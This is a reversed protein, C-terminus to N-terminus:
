TYATTCVCVCVKRYTGGCEIKEMQIKEQQRFFTYFASSLRKTEHVCVCVTTCMCVIQFRLPPLTTINSLCCFAFRFHSFLFFHARNPFFTAFCTFSFFHLACLLCILSPQQHAIAMYGTGIGLLLRFLFRCHLFFRRLFPFYPLFIDSSHYRKVGTAFSTLYIGKKDHACM